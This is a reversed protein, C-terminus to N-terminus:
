MHLERVATLIKNQHEENNIGIDNLDSFSQIEKIFDLSQFGNSIFNDFYLDCISQSCKQQLWEKIERQEVGDYVIKVPIDIVCRGNGTVVDGELQPLEQEDKTSICASETSNGDSTMSSHTMVHQVLQPSPVNLTHAKCQETM